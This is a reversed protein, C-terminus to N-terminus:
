DSKYNPRKQTVKRSVNLHILEGKYSDQDECM